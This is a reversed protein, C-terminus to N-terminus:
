HIFTELQNFPFTICPTRFFGILIKLYSQIPCKWIRLHSSIIIGTGLPFIISQTVRKHNKGSLLIGHKKVMLLMIVGLWVIKKVSRISLPTFAVPMLMFGGAITCVEGLSRAYGQLGLFAKHILPTYGQQHSM